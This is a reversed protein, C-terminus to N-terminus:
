NQGSNKEKSINLYVTDSSLWRASDTFGTLFLPVSCLFPLLALFFCYCNRPIASLTLISGLNFFNRRLFTRSEVRIIDVVLLLTSMTNSFFLYSREISM